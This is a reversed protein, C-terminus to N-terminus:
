EQPTPFDGITLPWTSNEPASWFKRDRSFEGLDHFWGSKAVLAVAKVLAERSACAVSNSIPIVGHTLFRLFWDAVKQYFPYNQDHDHAHVIVPVACIMGAIRGFNAAGYGHVYLLEIKGKRIVRIIDWLTRPDFKERNLHIHPIDTEEFLPALQDRCRLISLSVDIGMEILKPITNYYHKGAGHITGGYGLHDVIWLVRM